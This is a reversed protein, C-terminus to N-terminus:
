RLRHVGTPGRDLLDRYVSLDTHGTKRATADAKARGKQEAMLATFGDQDVTLGAEAGDGPHPRDPLRLHRASHIRRRRQDHVTQSGQHRHRCRHVTQLRRRTKSFSTEEGVATAVIQGRREEELEPYSPAMMDIVRGILAGMTPESAARLTVGAAESASTLLRVSRVVRRLLRRLM